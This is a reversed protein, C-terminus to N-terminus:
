AAERIEPWEALLKNKDSPEIYYGEGYVVSIKVGTSLLAARLRKMITRLMDISPLQSEARDGYIADYAATYPVFTRKLLLGLMKAENMMMGRGKLRVIIPLDATLGLIEELQAIRDELQERTKM